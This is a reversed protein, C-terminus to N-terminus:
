LAGVSAAVLWVAISAVIAFAIAGWATANATKPAFGKGGDWFLHRLGGALHFMLAITFGFLVVKGPISGLVSMYTEYTARGSALALAWGALILMGVYTAGGTMRNRISVFLTVHWRWHLLHPSLPRARPAM